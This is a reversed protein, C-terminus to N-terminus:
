DVKIGPHPELFMVNLARLVMVALVAVGM